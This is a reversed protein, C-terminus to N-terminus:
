NRVRKPFPFPFAAWCKSALRTAKINEWYKKALHVFAIRKIDRGHLYRFLDEISFHALECLLLDVTGELMPALDEPAGLDASHVIRLRGAEILFSYCEFGVPYNKQFAAQLSHLHTTPFPTVRAGGAVVPEGARLPVFRLRFPLL